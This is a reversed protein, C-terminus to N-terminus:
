TNIQNYIELNHKLKIALDKLKTKGCFLHLEIHGLMVFLSIKQLINLRKIYEKKSKLNIKLHRLDSTDDSLFEKYEISKIENYGIPKLVILRSYDYIGNDDAIFIIKRRIKCIQSILFILLLLICLSLVTIIFIMAGRGLIDAINNINTALLYFCFSLGIIAILYLICFM